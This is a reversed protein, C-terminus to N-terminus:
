KPGEFQAQVYTGLTAFLEAESLGFTQEITASESLWTFLAEIGHHAILYEGAFATVSDKLTADPDETTGWEQTVFDVFVFEKNEGVKTKRWAAWAENASNYQGSGAEDFRWDRPTGALWAAAREFYQVGASRANLGSWTGRPSGWDGGTLQYFLIQISEHGARLGSWKQTPPPAQTGDIINKPCASFIFRTGDTLEINSAFCPWQKKSCGLWQETWAAPMRAPILPDIEKRGYTCAWEMDSGITLLLIPAGPNRYRHGVLREMALLGAVDTQNRRPHVTPGRVETVISPDVPPRSLWELATCAAAIRAEPGVGNPLELGAAAIKPDSPDCAAEQYPFLPGVPSPSPTVVTTSDPSSPTEAAPSTCAALTLAFLLAVLRRM